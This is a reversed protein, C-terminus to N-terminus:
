VKRILWGHLDVHLRQVLASRPLVLDCGAQQAAKLTATDVHSGFGIILPAPKRNKIQKVLTDVDLNQSHLDLFVASPQHEDTLHSLTGVDRVMRVKCGLDHAAGTIQSGFLLDDCLLLGHITM